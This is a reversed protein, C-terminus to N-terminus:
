VDYDTTGDAKIILNPLDGAHKGHRWGLPNYHEGAAEFNPSCAGIDHIHLGHAGPAQLNGNLKVVVHVGAETEETFTATGVVTGKADRLTATATPANSQQALAMGSVALTLMMVLVSVLIKKM